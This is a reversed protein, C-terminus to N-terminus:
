RGASLTRTAPIFDRENAASANMSDRHANAIRRLFRPAEIEDVDREAVCVLAQPRRPHRRRHHRRDDVRDVPGAVRVDVDEAAGDEVDAHTVQVLIRPLAHAEEAPPEPGRAVAQRAPLAEVRELEKGVVDDLEVRERERAAADRHQGDVVRQVVVPVDDRRHARSMRGAHADVRHDRIRQRRHVGVAVVDFTRQLEAREVDVEDRDLIRRAQERRFARTRQKGRDDRRRAPNRHLQMRMALGAERRLDVLDREVGAEPEAVRSAFPADSGAVSSM